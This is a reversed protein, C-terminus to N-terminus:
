RPMPPQTQPWYSQREQRRAVLVLGATAIIVAALISIIAVYDYLNTRNSTQALTQSPYNTQHVQHSQRQSPDSQYSYQSLTSQNPSPYSTPYPYAAPYQGQIVTTTVVQQVGTGLQITESTTTIANGYQSDYISASIQVSDGQATPPLNFGLQGNFENGGNVPTLVTSVSGLGTNATADYASGTAYLQSGYYTTCSASVPVVIPVNSGTYVVPMAPYNLTATCSNTAQASVLNSSAGVILMTMSIALLTLVGLHTKL